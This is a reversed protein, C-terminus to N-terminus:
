MDSRRTTVVHAARRLFSSSLGSMMCLYRCSTVTTHLRKDWLELVCTIWELYQKGFRINRGREGTLYIYRILLLKGNGWFDFAVSIRPELDLLWCCIGYLKCDHRLVFTLAMAALGCPGGFDRLLFVDEAMAGSAFNHAAALEGEVLDNGLLVEVQGLTIQLHVAVLAVRTLQQDFCQPCALVRASLM